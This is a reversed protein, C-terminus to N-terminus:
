VSPPHKRGRLYDNQPQRSAKSNGSQNSAKTNRGSFGSSGSFESGFQSGTPGGGKGENRPKRGRKPRSGGAGARKKNEFASDYSGDYSGEFSGAKNRQPAPGARPLAYVDQYSGEVTSPSAATANGLKPGKDRTVYCAALTLLAIGGGAGLLVLLLADNGAEVEFEVNFFPQQGLGNVSADFTFVERADDLEDNEDQIFLLVLSNGQIWDPRSTVEAILVSLDVSQFVEDQEVPPVTWLVQNVTDERGVIDEDIFSPANGISEATVKINIDQPGSATRAQFTLVASAIDARPPIAVNQFRLGVIRRVGNDIQGIDAGNEDFIIDNEGVFQSADDNEDIIQLQVVDLRRAPAALDQLTM